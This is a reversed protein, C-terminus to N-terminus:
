HTDFIEQYEALKAMTAEQEAETPHDPDAAPPLSGLKMLCAMLLLRAKTATLNNGGLLAGRQATFGENNGRGVAVVPMGSYIARLVLTNQSNATPTGYPSLGETVFGALPADTLNQEIRALIDAEREPEDEYHDSHYNASKVITVRPIAEGLLEGQANKIAVPVSVLAGGQRQIGQVTTPLRTVNVQSLYTHCRAPWFVLVPGAHSINGLIGGHGGTAVYGGPRADGKQVDRSYFVQEEQIVVVGARNRGEADAWVRSTLYTVSDVVNKDGDNSIQGHTRQAANGSIPLTTDVLLNLWYATEEVQPSGQTWLAGDYQGSALAAQVCNVFTALAPRPPQYRLHVPRYPYFHHGRVEPPVDGEGVDSRQAAPLGKTYGGPPLARYFDVDAQAAILNGVGREGIGFRDIEEFERSGDPYFSQRALHAPAGPYACDEEWPEGNAQRGMYPLPYLGDEPRLTVEYVPVDAPGQQEKHFVGAPDLYGDPPAYLEAADHELPHASFQKVYVTVPAALEQARLVDYRVPNGNSHRLPPLGYKDRAKNSTVLPPTNMITANPGAFHALRPRRRPTASNAAM